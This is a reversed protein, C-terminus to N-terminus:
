SRRHVESQSIGEADFHGELAERYLDDGLIGKLVNKLKITAKAPNSIFMQKEYTEATQLAESLTPM